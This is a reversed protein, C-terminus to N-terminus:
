AAQDWSACSSRDRRRCGRPAGGCARASSGESLEALSAREWRGRFFADGHFDCYFRTIRYFMGAVEEQNGDEARGQLAPSEIKIRGEAAKRPAAEGLSIKAGAGAGGQQQGDGPPQLGGPHQEKLATLVAGQFPKPFSKGCGEGNGTFAGRFGQRAQKAVAGRRAKVGGHQRLFRHKGRVIRMIAEM